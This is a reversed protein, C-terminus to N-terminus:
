SHLKVRMQFTKLYFVWVCKFLLGQVMNLAYGRGKSSPISGKIIMLNKNQKLKKQSTYVDLRGHFILFVMRGECQIKSPAM